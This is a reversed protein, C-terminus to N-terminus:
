LQAELKFILDLAEQLTAFQLRVFNEKDGSFYVLLAPIDPQVQIHTIKRPNIFNNDVQIFM